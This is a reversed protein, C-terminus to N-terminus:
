LGGVSVARWRNNVLGTGYTVPAPLTQSPLTLRDEENRGLLLTATYQTRAAQFQNIDLTHVAEKVMWRGQHSEGIGDGRLEVLAGPKLRADGNTVAQAEVWLYAATGALLEQSQAYSSAPLTSYQQTLAPAVAQGLRDTRPRTYASLAFQAAQKNLATTTMRTRVGGGPDSEGVLATFQRLSDVMGPVKRQWFVPVSQDSAPLVTSQAVFHLTTGDLFLRYACRQALDSLFTFDSQSQMRQDFHQGSTEVWPLLNNDQAISRAISSASTDQWLRNVHDQMVASAGILTYQVPVLTLDAYRADNESALVRSSVVYGFFDAADDAYWRYRFHVPTQEAWLAGAPTRWSQSPFARQYNSMVTIEAVPHSGAALYVTVDSIWSGADVPPTLMTVAPSYLNRWM